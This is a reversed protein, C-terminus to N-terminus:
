REILIYRNAIFLRDDEANKDERGARPEEYSSAIMAPCRASDVAPGSWEGGGGLTPKRSGHQRKGATVAGKKQGARQARTM